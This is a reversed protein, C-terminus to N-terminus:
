VNARDLRNIHYDQMLERQWERIQSASFYPIRDVKIHPVSNSIVMQHISIKSVGFKSALEAITLLKEEQM